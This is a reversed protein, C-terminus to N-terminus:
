ELDNTPKRADIYPGWFDIHKQWAHCGLPLKDGNLRLSDALNYEFSFKLASIPDAVKFCPFMQPVVETWVVDENLHFDAFYFAFKGSLYIEYKGGTIKNLWQRLRSSYALSVRYLFWGPKFRGMASLVQICSHNNRISFGSNCGKVLQAGPAADWYGEFFPAGIFDFELAGVAEFDADFIYADLEYTLMYQYAEFLKYFALNLKLKNYQEVSTLCLADVPQLILNAFVATYASIDMGQPHVLYCDYINLKSAAAKLSILEHVSPVPQHVPIVVCINLDRNM